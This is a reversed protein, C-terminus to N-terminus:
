ASVERPGGLYSLNGALDRGGGGRKPFNERLESESFEMFLAFSSLMVTGLLVTLDAPNHISVRPSSFGKYSIAAIVVVYFIAFRWFVKKNM